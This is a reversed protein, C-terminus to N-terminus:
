HSRTDNTANFARDVAVKKHEPMLTRDNSVALDALTAEMGFMESIKSFERDCSDSKQFNGKVTIVGKPGPMKLQLYAYHPVAMFRAFTPRGLIAHYQSKWDVVEFEISETRFHHKDGFTVDLQITGEPSIAKGPVIGHFTNSSRPLNEVSRNMKRLTDAFIINIGSGGDMFVKSMAYGGIQADLVLASHGPRVVSPPHDEKSFSIATDSGKLYETVAPPSMVAM